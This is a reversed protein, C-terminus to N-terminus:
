NSDDDNVGMKEIELLRLEAYKCKSRISDYGDHSDIYQELTCNLTSKIDDAIIKMRPRIFEYMLYDSIDMEDWEDLDPYVALIRSRIYEITDGSEYDIQALINDWANLVEIGYNISPTVSRVEISRLVSEMKDSLKPIDRYYYDDGNDDVEGVLYFCCSNTLKNFGHELAFESRCKMDFEISDWFEDTFLPSNTNLVAEALSKTEAERILNQAHRKNSEEIQIKREEILKLADSESIKCKLIKTRTWPYLIKLEDEAIM